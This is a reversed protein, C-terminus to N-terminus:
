KQHFYFCCYCCFWCCSWWWYVLGTPVFFTQLFRNGYLIQDHQTHTRHVATRFISCHVCSGGDSKETQKLWDINSASFSQIFHVNSSEWVWKSARKSWEWFWTRYIRNELCRWVSLGYWCCYWIAISPACREIEWQGLKRRALIGHRIVDVVCCMKPASLVFLIVRSIYVIVPILSELPTQKLGVM